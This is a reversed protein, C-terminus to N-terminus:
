RADFSEKELVLDYELVEGYAGLIPVGVAAPVLVVVPLLERQEQRQPELLAVQAVTM